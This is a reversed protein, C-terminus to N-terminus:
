KTHRKPVRTLRKLVGRRSKKQSKPKGRPM